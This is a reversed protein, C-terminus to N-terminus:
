DFKSPILVPPRTPFIPAGMAIRVAGCVSNFSIPNSIYGHAGRELGTQVLPDSKREAVLLIKTRAFVKALEGLVAEGRDRLIAIGVLVLDPTRTSPSTMAEDVSAFAHTQYGERLIYDLASRVVQEPEIVFITPRASSMYAESDFLMIAGTCQDIRIM